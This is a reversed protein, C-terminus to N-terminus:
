FVGAIYSYAYVLGTVIIVISVGLGVSAAIHGLKTLNPKEEAVLEKELCMAIHMCLRRRSRGYETSKDWMNEVSGYACEPGLPDHPVPFMQKNSYESWSKAYKSVFSISCEKMDFKEYLESCLGFSKHKPDSSNMGLNILHIIIKRKIKTNM